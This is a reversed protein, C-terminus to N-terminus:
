DLALQPGWLIVQKHCYVEFLMPFKYNGGSATRVAFPKSMTTYGEITEAKVSIEYFTDPIMETFQYKNSKQEGYLIWM